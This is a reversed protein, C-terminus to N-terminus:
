RGAQNCDALAQQRRGDDPLQRAQSRCAERIQEVTDLSEGSLTPPEPAPGRGGGDQDSDDGGCGAFLVGFTLLVAGSRTVWDIRM